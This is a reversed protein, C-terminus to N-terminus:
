KLEFAGFCFGDLDMHENTMVKDNWVHTGNYWLLPRIYCQETCAYELLATVSEPSASEVLAAQNYLEELKDDQIYIRPLGNAYNAGSLTRLGVYSYVGDSNMYIFDLDYEEGDGVELSKYLADDYQDVKCNVGIENFMDIMVVSANRVGSNPDCIMRLEEGNYNSKALYEKALDLDQQYFYDMVSDDPCDLACQNIPWKAETGYVGKVIYTIAAADIAYALAKRLNIDSTPHGEACNFLLNIMNGSPVQGVTFGDMGDFNVVDTGMLNNTWDIQGSELALAITSKDTIIKINFVDMNQQQRPCRLSEDTQWYNEDKVFTASTGPIYEQLKYPGTGVPTTLMGDPSDNYAKETVVRVVRLMTVFAGAKENKLYFDLTYDDVIEIHDLCATKDSNTGNEIFKNYSFVVDSATLPNGASDHVYDYLYVRYVGDDINEFSKAIIYEITGDYEITILPEFDTAFLSARPGDTGWPGINGPDSENSITLVKQGAEATATMGLMSLALCLTLFLVLAKKM